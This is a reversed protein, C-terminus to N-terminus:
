FISSKSDIIEYIEDWSKVRKIRPDPRSQNWPRDWLVCCGNPNSNIWKQANSLSDEIIMDGSVIHKKSIFNVMNEPVGFNSTLWDVREPMWHYSGSMPATIFHLDTNEMLYKIAESSGPYQELSRCFGQRRFESRTLKKHYEDSLIETVDWTTIHDEIIHTGSIRSMIKCASKVFDSFIGDVDCLLRCKEGTTMHRVM